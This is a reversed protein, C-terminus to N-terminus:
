RVGGTGRFPKDLEEFITGRCFGKEADYIKRWTQWPVYAMALPMESLIDYKSDVACSMEGDKRCARHSVECSNRSAECSNQPVACSPRSTHHSQPCQRQSVTQPCSGYNNRREYEPMHYRYNPM